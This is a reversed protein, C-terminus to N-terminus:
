KMLPLAVDIRRLVEEKGIIEFMEWLGPGATVGSVALRPAGVLEGVKHGCREALEYFGKEIVPTKFDEISALMDRVLTAVEKSGEGFHKKAGKEDYETPAVFFYKAMTALDQVFHARPKLQKVIELLRENPEASTDVGMAKLGEVMINKLFEDDCMHIHQGNMWQLKKEDFSASKPNIRELTFCDIMEKVSMVERDDGPNWGLLALYNVLTEPLYGLDRFDGVSAAGKRKSLKGGNKDLIVPLHCWVPPQWGFAKYLLEHKPTSSIWEDGRLVHTTGMYHDDVVSAFHYTPYGDRKILVLDDLLENQYSIHGRIMDDFETVGTEPVKFRIVAKEGAAIRAEAEERSINRCHRDYGTVPM